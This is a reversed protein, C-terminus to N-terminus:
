SNPMKLNRMYTFNYLIQRERISKNLQKEVSEKRQEQVLSQTLDQLKLFTWTATEARFTSCLTDSQLFALILSM